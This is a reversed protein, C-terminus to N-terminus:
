TRSHQQIFALALRNFIRPKEAHLWHGTGEIIKMEINSFRSRIEDEHQALLYDSDGGKIFLIPGEYHGDRVAGSIADYCTDLRELPLRWQYGTDTHRLNKLLFQRVGRSDISKALQRDADQRNTVADLDVSTLAELIHRHRPDYAVPSIDAAIVSLTRDPYTLAFEMAIKGGMSHGVVHIQHLQLHDLTAALAAAMSAYDMKAFEPSDGHNPADVLLVPYHEALERALSKLNDLDGFLGHLLVVPAQQKAADPSPGLQEFNLIQANSM